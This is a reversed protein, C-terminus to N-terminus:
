EPVNTTVTIEYTDNERFDFVLSGDPNEELPLQVVVDGEENVFLATFGRVAVCRTQYRITKVVSEAM